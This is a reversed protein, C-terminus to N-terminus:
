NPNLRSALGKLYSVDEPRMGRLTKTLESLEHANLNIGSRKELYDLPIEFVYNMAILISTGPTHEGRVVGSVGKQTVFHKCKDSFERQTMDRDKLLQRFWEGFKLAPYKDQYAPLDFKPEILRSFDFPRESMEIVRLLPLNFYRSIALFFKYKPNSGGRMVLNLNAYSIGIAESFQRRNLGSEAINAEIFDTLKSM